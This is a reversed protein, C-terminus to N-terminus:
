DEDRRGGRSAEQAERRHLAQTAKRRRDPVVKPKFKPLLAAAPSRRKPPKRRRRM